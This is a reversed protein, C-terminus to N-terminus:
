VELKDTAEKEHKRIVEWLINEVFQNLTIDREHAMTMLQLMEEDSLDLPVSVRNDYDKDAVISRAKDLWDSEEELDVFDVNDWAQNMYEKNHKGAYKFYAAKHDPNFFRYARQRKYDCAEVLFVEQSETSFTVNFSWGDHDGNWATLTYATEDFCHWLFESGETIRYEVVEMFDKLNM